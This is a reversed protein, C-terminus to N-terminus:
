GFQQGSQLNWGTQRWCCVEALHSEMEVKTTRATRMTDAPTYPEGPSKSFDVTQTRFTNPESDRVLKDQRLTKAADGNHVESVQTRPEALRDEYWNGSFVSFETANQDSSQYM